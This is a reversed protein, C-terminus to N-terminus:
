YEKAGGCSYREGAKGRVALGAARKVRGRNRRLRDGKHVGRAPISKYEVHRAVPVDGDARLAHAAGRPMQIGGEAQVKPHCLSCWGPHVLLISIRRPVRGHQRFIGHHKPATTTGNDQMVEQEAKQRM